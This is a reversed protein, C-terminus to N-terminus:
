EMADFTVWKSLSDVSVTSRQNPSKKLDRLDQVEYRDNPLVATVKFPGKAKATLKRSEGTAVKKAVVTVVDGVNYQPPEFRGADFRKKQETQESDTSRKAEDRLEQLDLCDLTAQIEAALAADPVGRPKYGFLLQAPSRKTTRNITCNIASQVRKVQADWTDESEGGCTAALSNLVTRNLRECQGNARPTAVANLVHKVGNEQCFAEFTYSTFATGQDTIIRTPVGFLAFLQHLAKIVCKTKTNHVPELICFKTFGDIITLIQTNKNKTRIFPGIHDLHLTHFPVAVKDIPHLFGPKRGSKSKYYLCNLCAKVYKAVFRRMGKFWYNERIKELTKELAFHGQDDHCMKVIDWRSMRPVVWKNGDETRRFIVGGKLDYKEFYQKVDSQRDGSELIKRIVEIDPDQIQAVKIWEAATIDVALCEVPNRSLYDVHAAQTGPRYVIDFDYDQFYVWWRAVRPQIDKKNATARIASCDTVVRFKIGLLYVRFVKLAAFVALTELDYSHYKQEEPSTKRNYYAIVRKENKQNLQILIAGLGIASADTHVETKLEPDFIALIPRTSLIEKIERVANSQEPGWHWAVNKKLLNTLPAVRRAFNLVFKRFYGALGLFQRVQKVNIPDSVEKVVRIKRMGPRVGDKSIERGLYDIKRKFFKCKQLNVTLNYKEFTELVLKLEKFGEEIDNVALLVDDIYVLAKTGKLVENMTKQFVAPANALGMAMRLFEWHGDPTIIATKEISETHMPIQYYGSKLDLSIFYEKGGLNDIQDDILPLPYKILKTIKNLSRYDVVMRDEKGKQSVLFAPSAYPSNSERIIGSSQLKIIMTNLKERESKSMRYPRHYVPDENLLEIKMEGITSRELKEVDFAVRRRFRHLLNMLRGKNEEDLDECNVNKEDISKITDVNEVRILKNSKSSHEDLSKFIKVGSADSTVTIGPKLLNRGILIPKSLQDDPVIYVKLKFAINDIIIQIKSRAIPVSVAHNFGSLVKNTEKFKLVLERAESERVLSCESGLDISCLREKENILCM